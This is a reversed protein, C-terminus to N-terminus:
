RAAGEAHGAPAESGPSRRPLELLLAMAPQCRCLFPGERAEGLVQPLAPVDGCGGRDAHLRAGLQHALPPALGVGHQQMAQAEFVLARFAQRGARLLGPLGGEDRSVVLQEVPQGGVLDDVEGIGHVRLVLGPGRMAPDALAVLHRQPPCRPALAEVKVRREVQLIEVARQDLGLPDIGGGGDRQKRLQLGAVGALPPDVDDGVVGTIM